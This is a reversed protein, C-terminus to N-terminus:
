FAISIIIKFSGLTDGSTTSGMNPCFYACNQNNGRNRNIIDGFSLCDKFLVLFSLVNRDVHPYPAHMQMGEVFSVVNFFSVMM